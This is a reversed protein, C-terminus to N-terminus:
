SPTVDTSSRLARSGGGAPVRKLGLTLERRREPHAARGHGLTAMLARIDVAMTCKDYGTNPKEAYCSESIRSPRWHALTRRHSKLFARCRSGLVFKVWSLAPRLM